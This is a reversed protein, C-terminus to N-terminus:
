CRVEWFRRRGPVFYARKDDEERKVVSRVQLLDKRTVLEVLKEIKVETMPQHGQDTAPMLDVAHIVVETSQIVALSADSIREGLREHEHGGEIKWRLAGARSVLGIPRGAADM